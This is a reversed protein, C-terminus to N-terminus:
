YLYRGTGAGKIIWVMGPNATRTISEPLPVRYRFSYLVDGLNKPLKIGLALATASLEERAFPFENKGPRYHSAFIREILEAYRNQPKNMPFRM